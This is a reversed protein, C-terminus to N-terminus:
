SKDADPDVDEIEEIVDDDDLDDEEILDDDAVLEEAEDAEVEAVPPPVPLRAAARAAAGGSPSKPKPEGWPTDCKPCVIPTRNLDYFRAGCSACARKAGWEPKPM